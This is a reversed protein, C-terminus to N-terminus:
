RKSSQIIPTLILKLSSSSSSRSPLTSTTSHVLTNDATVNNHHPRRHCHTPTTSSNHSRTSNDNTPNPHQNAAARHQQQQQRRWCDENDNDLSHSQANAVWGLQGNGQNHQPKQQQQKPHHSSLNNNAYNECHGFRTLTGGNLNNYEKVGGGGAGGSSSNDVVMMLPRRRLTSATPSAPASSNQGPHVTTGTNSQSYIQQQQLQQQSPQAHSHVNPHDVVHIPPNNTYRHLQQTALQPQQTNSHHPPPKQFVSVASASSLEGTSKGGLISKPAKMIGNLSGNISGGGGISGKMSGHHNTYHTQPLNGNHMMQGTPLRNFVAAMGPIYKSKSDNSRESSYAYDQEAGLGSDTHEHSVRLSSDMVDMSSRTQHGNHNLYNDISVNSMMRCPMGHFHPCFPYPQTGNYNCM